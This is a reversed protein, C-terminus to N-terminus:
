RGEHGKGGIDKVREERWEGRISVRSSGCVRISDTCGILFPQWWASEAQTVTEGM